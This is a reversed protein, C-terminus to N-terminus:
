SMLDNNGVCFRNSRTWITNFQTTVLAYANLDIWDIKKIYFFYIPQIYQIIAILLFGIMFPSNAGKGERLKFTLVLLPWLVYGNEKVREGERRERYM